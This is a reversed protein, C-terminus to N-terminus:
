KLWVIIFILADCSSETHRDLLSQLLYATKSKRQWCCVGTCRCLRWRGTISHTGWSWRHLKHGTFSHFVHHERMGRIVSRLTHFSMERKLFLFFNCPSYHGQSHHFYAAEWDEGSLCSHGRWRFVAGDCLGLESKRSIQFCCGLSSATQVFGRIHSWGPKSKWSGTRFANIVSQLDFM